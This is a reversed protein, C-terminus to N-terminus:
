KRRNMVKRMRVSSRTIPKAKPIGGLASPVPSAGFYFGPQQSETQVQFGGPKAITPFFM